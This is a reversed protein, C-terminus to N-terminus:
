YYEPNQYSKSSFVLPKPPAVGFIPGSGFYIHAWKSLFISLSMYIRRRM